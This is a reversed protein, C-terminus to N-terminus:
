NSCRQLVSSSSALRESPILSWYIKIPSNVFHLWTGCMERKEIPISGAHNAFYADIRMTDGFSYSQSDLLLETRPALNIRKPGGPSTWLVGYKALSGAVGVNNIAYNRFESTPLVGSRWPIETFSEENRDFVIITRGSFDAAQTIIWARDALDITVTYVQQTPFGLADFWYSTADRTELDVVSRNPRAVQPSLPFGDLAYSFARQAQWRDLGGHAAFTAALPNDPPAAARSPSPHVLALMLTAASARVLTRRTNATMLATSM